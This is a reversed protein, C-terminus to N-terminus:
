FYLLHPPIIDQIGIKKFNFALFVTSKRISLFPALSAAPNFFGCAYGRPYTSSNKSGLVFNSGKKLM